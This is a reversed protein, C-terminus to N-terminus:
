AKLKLYLTIDYSNSASAGNTTLLIDGTGGTTRPDRRAGDMSQDFVGSGALVAIEDDTTHDWRLVVRNFGNVQYEIREVVSYTAAAGSPTTYTSIDVKTVDTEGTGDSENTLRVVLKGNLRVSDRVVLTDVTDAM